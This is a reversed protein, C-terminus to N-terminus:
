KSRLNELQTKLEDGFNIGRWRIAQKQGPVYLISVPVGPENYINKLAITATFDKQTTDAKIAMVGKQRILRSIDKNGYVIKEVVQCSFCWDATFKILVPKNEALSVEILDADYSQWDIAAPKPAPLFVLGAAVALIAAIIRVALKRSLATSYNVWSGWMWVCFGLVVAFYLINTRQGAPLAAILKVAIMLLVFGIAQKFLEMWRGAKPLKKLLGPLSTLVVYPAAMGVGILMIAFTGLALRQAQAWAFATALIAFSCPTSLIAALFGMGVAGAFGKGGGAKGTVSSPLGITFIGFCFQAMVILLIAMAAVFGPNRFQDGWQLVTGYFLHLIINATALCAFFLLIGSCFTLGMAVSKAKSERAQEVIRMVIIPLVPWVCPMINLAMGALFALALAFWLSYDPTKGANTRPSSFANPLTFKPKDMLAGPAIKITTKLSGFDPVRCQIDSCVAGEIPIDVNIDIDEDTPQINDAIGFPLFVTFKNSFVDLKQNLTKDFYSESPPFFPKSFTIYDNEAAPNVKLNMAGPATKASAYFHWDKKLEFRVALASNGGPRVSDHQQQVSISVVDAKIVGAQPSAAFTNASLILILGWFVGAKKHM